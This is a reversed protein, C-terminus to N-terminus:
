AAAADSGDFAGFMNCSLTVTWAGTNAAMETASETM